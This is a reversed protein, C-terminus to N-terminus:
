AKPRVKNNLAYFLERHAESFKHDFIAAECENYNMDAFVAALHSCAEDMDEYHRAEISLFGNHVWVTILQFEDTLCHYYKSYKGTIYYFPLAVETTAVTTPIRHRVQIEM